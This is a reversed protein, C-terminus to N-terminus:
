LFDVSILQFSYSDVIDPHIAVNIDSEEVASQYIIVDNAFGNPRNHYLADAAIFAATVYAETRDDLFLQAIESAESYMKIIFSEINKRRTDEGIGLENPLSLVEEILEQSRRTHHYGFVEYAKKEASSGTRLYAAFKLEINEKFQWISCVPRTKEGSYAKEFEKIATEKSFCGYFVPHFPVNARGFGKCYNKADPYGLGKKNWERGPSHNTIRYIPEILFGKFTPHGVRAVSKDYYQTWYNFPM